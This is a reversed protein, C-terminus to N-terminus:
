ILGMKIKNDLEWLATRNSDFKLRQIATAYDVWEYETHERSIVIDEGTVEVGFTYEPIVLCEKGWIQRANQFCETSISSQTELLTYKKSTLIGTEEFGERKASMLPTKDEDEGGGAVFQWCEMDRRKFICYLIEEQERNYPLVLVQYKARAM